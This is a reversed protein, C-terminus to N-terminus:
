RSSARSGTIGYHHYFVEIPASVQLAPLPFAEWLRETNLRDINRIFAERLSPKVGGQHDLFQGWRSMGQFRRDGEIIAPSRVYQDPFLRRYAETGYLWSRGLVTKAAPFYKDVYAFMDELERRRETMRAKRLPGEADRNYFHIRVIGTEEDAHFDFCGSVQNPFAPREDSAQAYFAQTWETRQQHTKLRDLQQAYQQWVPGPASEPPDGLGMRRHLNTTRLVADAVSISMREAVAEAFHMQLDFYDRYRVIKPIGTVDRYM